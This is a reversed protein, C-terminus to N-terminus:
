TELSCSQTVSLWKKFYDVSKRSAKCFHCACAILLTHVPFGACLQPLVGHPCCQGDASTVRQRHSANQIGGAKSHMCFYCCLVRFCMSSYLHLLDATCLLSSVRTTVQRASAKCAVQAAEAVL